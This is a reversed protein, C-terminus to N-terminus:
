KVRNGLTNIHAILKSHHVALNKVRLIYSLLFLCQILLFIYNYLIVSYLYKRYVCNTGAAINKYIM